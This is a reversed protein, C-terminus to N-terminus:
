RILTVTGKNEMPKNDSGTYNMRFYYIGEPSNTGAWKFDPDTSRFIAQGWRNFILISFEKLHKSSIEFSDNIGDNNPTFVNPIIIASSITDECSHVKITVKSSGMCGATNYGTVFYVINDQATIEPDAISTDSININPSWHYKTAGTAHLNIKDGPCLITDRGASVQPPQVVKIRVTDFLICNGNTSKLVYYTDFSPWVFPSDSNTSSIAVPPSWSFGSVGTAYLQLTDGYCVTTDPIHNIVPPPLVTVKVTDFAYNCSDFAKVIYITTTDPHAMPSKSKNDSLKYNPNWEFSVGQNANLQVSDGKCITLDSGLTVSFKRFIVPSENYIYNYITHGKV